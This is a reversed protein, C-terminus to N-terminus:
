FIHGIGPKLTLFFFHVLVDSGGGGGGGLAKASLRRRLWPPRGSNFLKHTDINTRATFIWIIRTEIDISLGNKLSKLSFYNMVMAKTTKTWCIFINIHADFIKSVALKLEIKKLTINSNSFNKDCWLFSWGKGTIVCGFQTTRLLLFFFFFFFLLTVAIQIIKKWRARNASVPFYPFFNCKM